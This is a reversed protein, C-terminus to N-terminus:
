RNVNEGETEGCKGLLGESVNSTTERSFHFHHDNRDDESILLIHLVKKFAQLAYACERM